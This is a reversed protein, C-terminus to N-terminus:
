VHTRKSAFLHCAVRERKERNDGCLCVPLLSSSLPPEMRSYSLPVGIYDTLSASAAEKICLRLFQTADKKVRAAAARRIKKRSQM